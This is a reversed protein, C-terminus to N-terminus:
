DKFLLWVALAAGVVIVIVGTTGLGSSAAPAPEGKSGVQGGTLVNSVTGQVDTVSNRVDDISKTLNAISSNIGGIDDSTAPKAAPTKAASKIVTAQKVVPGAKPSGMGGGSISVVRAM